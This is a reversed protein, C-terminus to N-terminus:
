ASHPGGSASRAELMCPCCIAKTVAHGEGPGPKRGCEGGGCSPVHNQGAAGSFSFTEKAAQRGSGSAAGLLVTVDRFITGEGPGRGGPVRVLIGPCPGPTTGPLLHGALICPWIDPGTLPLPRTQNGNGDMRRAWSPRSVPHSPPARHGLALPALIPRLFPIPMEAGALSWGQNSQPKELARASGPLEFMCM